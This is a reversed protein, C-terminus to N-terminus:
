HEEVIYRMVARKRLVRAGGNEAPEVHISMLLVTLESLTINHPHLTYYIGNVLSDYQWPQDRLRLVVKIEFLLKNGSLIRDDITELEILPASQPINDNAAMRMEMGESRLFAKLRTEIELKMEEILKYRM